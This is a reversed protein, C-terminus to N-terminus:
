SLGRLNARKLISFAVVTYAGEVLGALLSPVVMSAAMVAPPVPFFGPSLQHQLALAGAVALTSVQLGLWAAVFAAAREHVRRLLQYVLWAALPGFLGMALANVGLVTVGGAGLLTAQLLLVLSECVFAVRPDFLLALLTIGLLHTSTGGPVPIMITQIVFAVATLSGVVPLSEVAAPGFRTRASWVWIPAAAVLAPVTVIPSLFGDPIHM